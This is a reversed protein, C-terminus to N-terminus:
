REEGIKGKPQECIRKGRRACCHVRDIRSFAFTINYTYIPIYIYLLSNKPPLQQLLTSLYLYTCPTSNLVWLPSPSSLPCRENPWTCFARPTANDNHTYIFLIYRYLVRVLSRLAFARYVARCRRIIGSLREKAGARM